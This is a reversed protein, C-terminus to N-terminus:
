KAIQGKFRSSLCHSGGCKSCMCTLVCVCLIGGVYIYEKIQSHSIFMTLENMYEVFVEQGLVPIGVSGM